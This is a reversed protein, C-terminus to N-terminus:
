DLIALIGLKTSILAFKAARMVLGMIPIKLLLPMFGSARVNVPNAIFM